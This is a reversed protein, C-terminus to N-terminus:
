PGAASRALDPRPRRAHIARGLGGAARRVQERIRGRGGVGSVQARGVVKCLAREARHKGRYSVWLVSLDTLKTSKSHYSLSVPTCM